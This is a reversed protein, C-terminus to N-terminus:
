FSEVDMPNLSSFIQVWDLTLLYSNLGEYNAKTFNFSSINPDNSNTPKSVAAFWTYWSISSHDSTSFPALVTVNIVALNDNTLLLALINESWTPNCVLQHLNNNIVFNVFSSLRAPYTSLDSWLIDLMNFDGVITYVYDIDCSLDLCTSLDNIYACSVTPPCYVLIFRQKHNYYFLNM